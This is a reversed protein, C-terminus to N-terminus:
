EKKVVTLKDIRISVHVGVQSVYVNVAQGGSCLYSIQSANKKKLEM